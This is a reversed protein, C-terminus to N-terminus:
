KSKRRRVRPKKRDYCRAHMVNQGKIVLDGPQRIGKRCITCRVAGRETKRITLPTRQVGIQYFDRVTKYADAQLKAMQELIVALEAKLAEMRKLREEEPPDLPPM